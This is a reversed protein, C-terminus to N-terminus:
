MADAMYCGFPATLAGNQHINLFASYFAVAVLSWHSQKPASFLEIYFCAIMIFYGM